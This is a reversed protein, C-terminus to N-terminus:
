VRENGLLKMNKDIKNCLRKVQASLSHSWLEFGYTVFLYILIFFLKRLIHFPLKMVLKNCIGIARSVKTSINKIHSAFNLKRDVLRGILKTCLSHELKIGDFFLQPLVAQFCNKLVTYSSESVNLSLRNIRLWNVM